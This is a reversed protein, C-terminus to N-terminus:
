NVIFHKLPVTRQMEYDRRLEDSTECTKSEPFRLTRLLLITIEYIITCWFM